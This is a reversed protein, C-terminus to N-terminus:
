LFFLQKIITLVFGILGIIIIGLGAAKVVTKFEERNPKKTIRLVRWCEIFFRKLRYIKSPNQEQVIEM